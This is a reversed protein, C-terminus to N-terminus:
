VVPPHQRYAAASPLPPPAAREPVSTGRIITHRTRVYVCWTHRGTLHSPTALGMAKLLGGRHGSLANDETYSIALGEIHTDVLATRVNFHIL